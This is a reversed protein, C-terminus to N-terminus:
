IWRELFLCIFSINGSPKPIWWAPMNLDSRLRISLMNELPWTLTRTQVAVRAQPTFRGAWATIMLTLKNYVEQVKQFYFHLYLNRKVTMDKPVVLGRHCNRSFSIIQYNIVCKFSVKLENRIGHKFLTLLPTEQLSFGSRDSHRIVPYESKHHWALRGPLDQCERRWASKRDRLGDGTQCTHHLCWWWWGHCVSGSGSGAWESSGLLSGTGQYGARYGWHQPSAWLNLKTKKWTSRWERFNMWLTLSTQKIQVQM